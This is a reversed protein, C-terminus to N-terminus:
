KGKKPYYRTSISHIRDIVVIDYDELKARKLPKRFYVVGKEDKLMEKFGREEKSMDNNNKTQIGDQNRMRGQPVLVLSMRVIRLDLGVYTAHLNERLM